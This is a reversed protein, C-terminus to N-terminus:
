GEHRDWRGACLQGYTDAVSGPQVETIETMYEDDDCEVGADISLGLAELIAGQEYDDVSLSNKLYIYGIDETRRENTRWCTM